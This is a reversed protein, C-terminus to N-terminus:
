GVPVSSGGTAVLRQVCANGRASQLELLMQPLRSNPSSLFGPDSLAEVPHSRDARGDAPSPQGPGPDLGVTSTGSCV